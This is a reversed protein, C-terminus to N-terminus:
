IKKMEAQVGWPGNVVVGDGFYWLLLAPDDTEPLILISRDVSSTIQIHDIMAINYNFSM